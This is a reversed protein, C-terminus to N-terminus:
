LYLYFQFTKSQQFDFKMVLGTDLIFMGGYLISFISKGIYDMPPGTPSFSFYDGLTPQLMHICSIQVKDIDEPILDHSFQYIRVFLLIM